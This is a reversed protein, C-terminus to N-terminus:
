QLNKLIFLDLSQPLTAQSLKAKIDIQALSNIATKLQQQSFKAAQGTLKSKRWTNINLSKTDVKIWYLDRFLSSILAFTFETPEHKKVEHLMKISKASNGPFLSDLFAWIHKPLEYNEIKGHKKAVNQIKVGAKNQSYILLNSDLSKAKKELYKLNKEDLLKPDELVFLRNEEFLSTGSLMEPIQVAKSLHIVEWGRKHIGDLIQQFRKRSDVIHTGQILTIKM